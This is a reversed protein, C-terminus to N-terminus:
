SKNIVSVSCKHTQAWHTSSLFSLMVVPEDEQFMVVAAAPRQERKKQRAFKELDGTSCVVCADGAGQVPRWHILAQLSYM